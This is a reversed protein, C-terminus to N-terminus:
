PQLFNEILLMFYKILMNFRWDISNVGLNQLVLLPNFKCPETSFYKHIFTENSLPTIQVPADKYILRQIYKPNNLDEKFNELYQSVAQFGKLFPQFDLFFTVKYSSQTLQIRPQPEFILPHVM